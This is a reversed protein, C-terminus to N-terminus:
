NLGSSFLNVLDEGEANGAFSAGDCYRIVVTNWNYFDSSLQSLNTCLFM